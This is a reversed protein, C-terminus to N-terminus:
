SANGNPKWGTVKIWLEIRRKHPHKLKRDPVQKHTCAEGARSGCDWCNIEAVVQVEDPQPDIIRVVQDEMIQTTFNKSRIHIHNGDRGQHTRVVVARFTQTYEVVDGPKVEM